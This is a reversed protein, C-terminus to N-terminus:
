SQLFAPINPDPGSSADSSTGTETEVHALAVGVAGAAKQVAQQRASRRWMSGAKKAAVGTSAVATVSAAQGVESVNTEVAKQAAQQRASRRWMGGARKAAVGTSAAATVSPPKGMM